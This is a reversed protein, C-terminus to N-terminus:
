ENQVLNEIIKICKTFVNPDFDLGSYEYINIFLKYAQQDYGVDVGNLLENEKKLKLFWYYKSYLLDSPSIGMMKKLHIDTCNELAKYFSLYREYVNLNKDIGFFNEIDRETLIKMKDRLTCKM